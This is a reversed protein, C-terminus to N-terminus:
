KLRFENNRIITLVWNFKTITIIRRENKRIDLYLLRNYKKWKRFIRFM